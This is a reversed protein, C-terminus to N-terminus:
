ALYGLLAIESKMEMGDPRYKVLYTCVLKTCDCVVSQSHTYKLTSYM